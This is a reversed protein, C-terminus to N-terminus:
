SSLCKTAPQYLAKFLLQLALEVLLRPQALGIIECFTDAGVGFAAARIELSM